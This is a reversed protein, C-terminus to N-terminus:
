AARDDSDPDELAEAFFDDVAKRTRAHSSPLLHTYVRLTFGPDTHGLYQSLAKISEGADLLVSAYLHRLAHVGDARTPKEVGADKLAPLWFNVRFWEARFVRGYGNVMLLRVTTPEGGPHSWPLTVETAPFEEAYEDLLGLLKRGIPVERSKGGKPPAFVPKGAVVRVQRTIYALDKTRDVDDLSFGFLEGKRLGLGAPVDVAPKYRRPLNDRVGRARERSWPVVQNRSARPRSIVKSLAPNESIKKDAMAFNLISVLHGFYLARSTESAEADQLKRLWTQIHSPRIAGVAKKGFYPLLHVNVRTAFRERSTYDVTQSDLWSQAVVEFLVLGARPDIYKGERKDSEMEILFDEARKKQKDPFSKSRESGDPDLYRVKYRMGVGYLETKELVPRGRANLRLNGKADKAPKYWRDQIHGM